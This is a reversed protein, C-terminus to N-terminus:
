RLTYGGDIVIDQGTIYSSEDSALFLVTRAVEEAEGARGLPTLKNVRPILHPLRELMPTNIFGPLVCNVRVGFKAYEVAATRTLMIVGAKAACYAADGPFAVKGAVSATSIISGRGAPAMVRVAAQIGLFVGTLNVSLVQQWDEPSLDAILAGPGTIGANNWLADLGGFREVAMRVMRECDEPSTVDGALTQAEAGSSTIENVLAALGGGDRDGLTLHAGAKAFLRAGARGIGSAAGTIIVSKGSLSTM